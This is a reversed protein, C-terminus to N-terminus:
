FCLRLRYSAISQGKEEAISTAKALEDQSEQLRKAAKALEEGHQRKLHDIDDSMAGHKEDSHAFASKEFTRLRDTLASIKRM